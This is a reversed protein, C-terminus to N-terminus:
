KKLNFNLLFYYINQNIKNLVNSFMAIILAFLITSILTNAFFPIALIYCTMLGQFTKPYFDFLLWVGLNSTTFFFVSAGIASLFINFYNKYLPAILSITLIIFYILIQFASFGIIIDSIFMALVPIAAGYVRDKILVPSIIAAALIPTFNPPHPILRFFCLTISFFILYFLKDKM